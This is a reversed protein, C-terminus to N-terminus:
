LEIIEDPLREFATSRATMKEISSRKVVELSGSVADVTMSKHQQIHFKSLRDGEQM